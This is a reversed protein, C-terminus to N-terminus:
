VVADSVRIMYREEGSGFRNLSVLSILNRALYVIGVDPKEIEYAIQDFVEHDLKRKFKMLAGSFNVSLFNGFLLHLSEIM